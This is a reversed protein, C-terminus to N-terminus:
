KGEAKLRKDVLTAYGAIDHWSDSYDPDGNLIRGIKNFIISLGERQDPAMTPWNPSKAAIEAFGQAYVAQDKFEGYRSGREALTDIVTPEGPTPESLDPMGLAIAREQRIRAVCLSVGGTSIGLEQAIDQQKVGESLRQKVIPIVKPYDIRFGGM